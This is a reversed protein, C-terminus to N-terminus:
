HISGKIWPASFPYKSNGRRKGSALCLSALPLGHQRRNRVKNPVPDSTTAGLLKLTKFFVVATALLKSLVYRFRKLSFRDNEVQWQLSCKGVM